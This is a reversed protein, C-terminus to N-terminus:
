QYIYNHATVESCLLNYFNAKSYVPKQACFITFVSSQFRAAWNRCYKTSLLWDVVVNVLFFHSESSVTNMDSLDSFFNSRIEWFTLEEAFFGVSCNCNCITFTHTHTHQLTSCHTASHQPTNCQAATYQLTRGHESPPHPPSLGLFERRSGLIEQDRKCCLKAKCFSSM